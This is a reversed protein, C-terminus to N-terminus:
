FSLSKLFSSGTFQSLVFRHWFIYANRGTAYATDVKRQLDTVGAKGDNHVFLPQKCSMVNYGLLFAKYFFVQDDPWAYRTDDLWMEDRLNLSSVIDSRMMFCQFNGSQTPNVMETLHNNVSFSGNSQITIKYKSDHNETRGGILYQILRQKRSQFVDECPIMIDAKHQDMLALMQEAFDPAFEIDDDLILLYEPRDPLESCYELGYIRQSWMGKETFIYTEKGTTEAPPPYGHPLVVYINDPAITQGAIANLEKLYKGGGNLTRIVVSYNSKM